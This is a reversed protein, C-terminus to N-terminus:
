AAEKQDLEDRRQEIADMLLSLGEPDKADLEARLETTLNFLREVKAPTDAGKLAEIAADRRQELTQVPPTPKPQQKPERPGSAANGDDDEPAAGTMALLAYRRGYTIASGIGQPDAKTPNLRLTGTATAGSEHILVTTISVLGNDYGPSQMVAIGNANLAPVTAEVVEALDAYKSKFHPNSAAKKVAETAMQAAVFAKAFEAVNGTFTVPSMTEITAETM